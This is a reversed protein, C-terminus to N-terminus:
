DDMSQAVKKVTSFLSPSLSRRGPASKGPRRTSTNSGEAFVLESRALGDLLCRSRGATTFLIKLLHDPNLVNASEAKNQRRLTKLLLTLHRQTGRDDLKELGDIICLLMPPSQDLLQGLVELAEDLSEPDGDLRDFSHRNLSKPYNMTASPFLDVLQRILAYTLSILATMEPTVDVPLSSGRRPLECFFSIVPIKSEVALDICHTAISAVPSQQEMQSPGVINLIQSSGSATWEQLAAVIQWDLFLGVAPDYPIKTQGSFISDELHRSHYQLDEEHDEISAASVTLLAGEKTYLLLPSIDSSYRQGLFYLRICGASTWCQVKDVRRYRNACVIWYTACSKMVNSRQNDREKASESVFSSAKEMLLAKASAGILRHLDDFRKMGELKLARLEERERAIEEAFKNERYSREAEDRKLDQLGVVAEEALKELVMRTYRIESHSGHQAERSIAQSIRKINSIEDEFRDYFDERLSSLARKISKRVYWEITNRLFFFIHAYLNAINHQMAQTRYLVCDKVCADVAESIEELARSLGEAIKEYNTSAKILTQLTGCFVSAYHSSSPLINLLNSHSDLRSCMRRFFMKSRGSVGKQKELQWDNEMKSVLSIVDGIEQPREAFRIQQDSPLKERLLAWAKTLENSEVDLKAIEPEDSVPWPEFHKRWEKLQKQREDERERDKVIALELENQPSDDTMRSEVDFSFSRYLQQAEQSDVHRDQTNEM